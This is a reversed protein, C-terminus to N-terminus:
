RTAREERQIEEVLERLRPTLETPLAVHAEALLDGHRSLEGLHAMGQGRLRFVRGDATGPPIRLELKRGDPTPVHVVGGLLFDAFSANVRVRLDDVERTFTKDPHMRTVLFLDGARGGNIGPGGQGSLRIRSGETVGAPITVELTRNTEGPRAFTIGKTAGRYAEALTVDITFEYDAGQRPRSSTRGRTRGSGAGGGFASEFFDSFPQGGGFLDEMDEASYTQRGGGESYGRDYRRFDAIDAPQGAAKAAKSWQEYEQWRSGLEDYSRRKDPDSLVENAEAVQKFREEAQADNPNLDPHHKRALARYAAKIEKETATRPVGLVAYYDQFEM